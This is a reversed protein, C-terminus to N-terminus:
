LQRHSFSSGTLLPRQVFDFMAAAAHNSITPSSFGHLVDHAVTASHGLTRIGEALRDSL